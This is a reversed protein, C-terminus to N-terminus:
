QKDVSYKGPGIFIMTFFVIALEIAHSAKDLGGSHYGSIAAITMTFTILLCAPRFAFGIVFLAMCLTEAMTAMFGWFPLWFHIGIVKIAAGVERWKTIGGALKEWGYVYIFLGGLWIRLLLQGIAPNRSLFAWM